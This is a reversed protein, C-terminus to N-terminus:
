TGKKSPQVTRKIQEEQISQLVAGLRKNSVVEAQKVQRIKDFVTYPLPLGDYRIEISGDPYDYIRIKKRRLDLSVDNPELLYVVRDYQVTLRNTVTRNEQWTFTQELCEHDTLQRHVDKPNL